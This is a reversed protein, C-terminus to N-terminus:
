EEARFKKLVDNIERFCIIYYWLALLGETCVFCLECVPVDMWTAELLKQCAANDQHLKFYILVGVSIWVLIFFFLREVKKKNKSRVAFHICSSVMQWGLILPLFFKYYNTYDFSYALSIFLVSQFIPDAIKFIKVKQTM